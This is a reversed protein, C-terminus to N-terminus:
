GGEPAFRALLLSEFHEKVPKVRIRDLADTAFAYTLINRAQAAGIGRSRLYFAATADLQGITAGHTCRVDNADIELQPKTNVEAKDSLLLNKNSQVADTKQADRRVFIKGNFVAKSTGDLVGKYLQHSNCHATAHDIATHHDVHQGDRVAYLGDLSCECGTGTLRTGIDNRAVRAGFSLSFSGIYSDREQLGQLLGTHYADGSEVQARCHEVRANEGARLETVGNRWFTGSGSYTEVVRVASSRGAVLLVRPQRSELSDRFLLHVPEEVLTGPEVVVVAADPFFATNLACLAHQEPAAITGLHEELLGQEKLLAERLSMVRLGPQASFAVSLADGLRVAEGSHHVYTPLTRALGPPRPTWLPEGRALASLDTYKYEENRTTPVGMSLFREMARERRKRLWAPEGATRRLFESFRELYLSASAVGAPM